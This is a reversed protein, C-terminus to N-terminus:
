LRTMTASLAAHDSVKAFQTGGHVQASNIHFGRTYIRDLRFLPLISPFSRAAQGHTSEFVERLHLGDALVRGAKQRWDNFDGAIVLPAHQPVLSEIRERLLSLQKHRWHALLGFHVCIGHLPQEWGPIAIECHLMGRQEVPNASIDVNEWRAIPYKSLVANGHHGAPYVANKGYVSDQWEREALYEHQSGVHLRQHSAHEGRVEQLFVIDAQMHRLLDRQQRLVLRTNFSSVGKHINFTAIRLTRHM